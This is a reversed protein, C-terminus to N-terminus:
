SAEFLGPLKPEEPKIRMGSRAAPTLGLEKSMALMRRSTAEWTKFKRSRAVGVKAFARECERVVMITMVYTILFDYDVESAVAIERLRRITEHYVKIAEPQFWAPPDPYNSTPAVPRALEGHDSKTGEILRLEVSRAPHGPM